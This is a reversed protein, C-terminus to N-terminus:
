NTTATKLNRPLPPNPVRHKSYTNKPENPSISLTLSPVSTSSIQNPLNITSHLILNVFGTKKSFGAHFLTPHRLPGQVNQGGGASSGSIYIYGHWAGLVLDGPTPAGWWIGM